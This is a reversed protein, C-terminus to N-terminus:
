YKLVERSFLDKTVKRVTLVSLSTQIKNSKKKAKDSWMNYNAYFSICDVCFFNKKTKKKHLTHM